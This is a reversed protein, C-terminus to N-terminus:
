RAKPMHLDIFAMPRSSSSLSGIACSRHTDNLGKVFQADSNVRLEICDQEARNM